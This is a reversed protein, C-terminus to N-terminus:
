TWWAGRAGATRSARTAPRRPQVPVRHQLGPEVAGVHVHGARGPHPRPRGRRPRHAAQRDPRLPGPRGARGAARALDDPGPAHGPRRDRGGAGRRQGGPRDRLVGPLEACAPRPPRDTRGGRDARRHVPRRAPDAEREDDRALQDAAGDYLAADADHGLARAARRPRRWADVAEANHITRAANDDFAYGYRMPAPWDIIGHLYSSAGGTLDTILGTKVNAQLYAAISQLTAYSSALTARDGSQEYYRWVWGPVFETYDPIDRMNDGNPYVANVRGPTGLRPYSCPLQLATCYGSSTAKWSHTASALIERIARATAARDGAATMNAFSIDVTDGTFQGKERTPTDLFTEESSYIGSRQMLAFVDDLLPNDSSFTARREAPAAQHQVVAAIDDATLPEGAGPPLIQLYRWGWYLM